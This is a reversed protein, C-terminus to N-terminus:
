PITVANLGGTCEFRHERPLRARSLTASKTRVVRRSLVNRQLRFMAGVVIAPLLTASTAATRAAAVPEVRLKLLVVLLKRLRFCSPRRKQGCGVEFVLLLGFQDLEGLAVVNREAIRRRHLLVLDDGGDYGRLLLARAELHALPM